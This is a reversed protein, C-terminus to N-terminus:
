DAKPAPIYHGGKAVRQAIRHIHLEPSALAVYRLEVEYGARKAAAMRQLVTNGSLTTELSISKAEALNTQFLTIAARGAAIEHQAGGLSKAIRDPDIIVDIKDDGIDRLTSKGAGNPGAYLILKPM